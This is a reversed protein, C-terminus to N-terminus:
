CSGHLFTYLLEKSEVFFLNGFLADISRKVIQKWLFFSSMKKLSQMSNLTSHATAQECSHVFFLINDNYPDRM